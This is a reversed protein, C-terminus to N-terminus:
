PTLLRKWCIILFAKKKAQGIAELMDKVFESPRNFYEKFLHYTAYAFGPLTYVCLWWYWAIGMPSQYNM